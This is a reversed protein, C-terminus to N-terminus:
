RLLTRLAECVDTLSRELRNLIEDRENDSNQWNRLEAMFVGQCAGAVAMPVASNPDLEEAAAVHEAIASKWREWHAFAEARLSPYSDLLQFRELWVESSYLASRTSTIVASRIASLPDDPAAQALAELLWEITADFPGWIVGSKSGFYRFFTTRGINAASAIADVSVAEYGDGLMM